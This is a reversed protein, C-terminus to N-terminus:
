AAFGHLVCDGHIGFFCGDFAQFGPHGSQVLHEAAPQRLEREVDDGPRGAAALGRQRVLEHERQGRGLTGGQIERYQAFGRQLHQAVLLLELKEVAALDVAADPEDVQRLLGGGTVELLHQGAHHGFDLLVPRAQDEDVREARHNQRMVAALGEDAQLLEDLLQAHQHRAPLGGSEEDALVEALVVRVRNEGHGIAEDPQALADLAVRDHALHLDHLHAPLGRERAQVRKADVGAPEM